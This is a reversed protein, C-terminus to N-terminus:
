LHQILHIDFFNVVVPDALVQLKKKLKQFSYLSHILDNELDLHVPSLNSPHM